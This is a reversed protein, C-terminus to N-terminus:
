QKERGCIKLHLWRLLLTGSLAAIWPVLWDAGKPSINEGSGVTVILAVIITGTLLAQGGKAELLWLRDFLFAILLTLFTGILALMALGRDEVCYRIPM